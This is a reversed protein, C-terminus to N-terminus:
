QRNKYYVHLSGKFRGISSYIKWRGWMFPWKVQTTQWSMTMLRMFLYVAFDTWIIGIIVLKLHPMYLSLSTFLNKSPIDGELHMNKYRSLTECIPWKDEEEERVNVCGWTSTKRCCCHATHSLAPVVLLICQTLITFVIYQGFSHLLLLGNTHTHLSHLCVMNIAWMLCITDISM